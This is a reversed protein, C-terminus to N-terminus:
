AMAAVASLFLPRLGISLRFCRFLLLWPFLESWAVARVTGREEEIM